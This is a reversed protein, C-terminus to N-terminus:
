IGELRILSNSIAVLKAKHQLETEAIDVETGLTSSGDVPVSSM